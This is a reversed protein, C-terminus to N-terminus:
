RGLDVFVGGNSKALQEMFHKQFEGIAITHIVVKRLENATNVERLIDATDVFKGTSPRGDSLFFITDVAVEYAKDRVGRGAADLATILAEYTNTKGEGLNASGTLGAAALGSRSAGGIAQLRKIFDAASSKNLVNARVLKKKWPKVKTAFAVINFKVYPELREITRALETKVIEIRTFGPYDGDAFRDKEVVQNEM